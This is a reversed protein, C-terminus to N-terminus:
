GNKKNKSIVRDLQNRLQEVQKSLEQNELQIRALSVQLEANQQKVKILEELLDGNKESLLDISSQLEQLFDNNRKKSAAFYGVAGGVPGAIVSVVSM